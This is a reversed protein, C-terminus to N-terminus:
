MKGKPLPSGQPSPGSDKGFSNEPWVKFEGNEIILASLRGGYIFSIGTDIIWVKGGFREMEKRTPVRPTHAIVMVRAGLNALIRDVEEKMDEEPVNALDRYWLPGDTNYAIVLPRDQPESKLAAMALDSLERRLRNNIDEIKWTSYKEAIGGHVFIIGNIKIVANQKLLWTGYQEYFNTFYERQADRDNKLKNWFTSFIAGWQSDNHVDRLMKQLHGEQKKKYAEPLFSRFQDASIYDPYRFVINTLNMEEHNGLLVHVMGGAAEAEKELKILLDFIKKADPGRDMIDGTQVLHTQGATWHLDSDVTRTGRLIQVFNDYDGHLDGVAIIKEVDTWVDQTEASLLVAVLAFLLFAM